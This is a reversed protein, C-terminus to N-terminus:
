ISFSGQFNYIVAHLDVIETSFISGTCYCDRVSDFDAMTCNELAPEPATCTLSPDVREMLGLLEEPCGMEDDGNPCDKSLIPKM